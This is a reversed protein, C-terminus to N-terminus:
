LKFGKKGLCENIGDFIDQCESITFIIQTQYEKSDM